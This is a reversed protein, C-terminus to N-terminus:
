YTLMDPVNLAPSCAPLERHRDRRTLGASSQMAFPRCPEKNGGTHRPAKHKYHRGTPAQKWCHLSGASHQTISTELHLLIRTYDQTVTQTAKPASASM